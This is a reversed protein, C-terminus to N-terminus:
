DSLKYLSDGSYINHRKVFSNKMIGYNKANAKNESKCM